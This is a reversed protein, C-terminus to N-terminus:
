LAGCVPLGTGEVGGSSRLLVWCIDPVFIVPGGLGGPCDPGAPSTYAPPRPWRGPDVPRPRRAPQSLHPRAHRVEDHGRAAVTRRLRSHIPHNHGSEAAPRSSAQRSPAPPDPPLKTFLNLAGAEVRRDQGGVAALTMLWEACLYRFKQASLSM